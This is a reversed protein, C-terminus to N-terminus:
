FGSLERILANANDQAEQRAALDRETVSGTRRLREAEALRAHAERLRASSVGRRKSVEDLRRRLIELEQDQRRAREQAAALAAQSAAQNQEAARADLGARARREDAARNEQALAAQRAQYGGGTQCGIGDFFTTRTPDCDQSSACGVLGFLGVLALLVKPEHVM